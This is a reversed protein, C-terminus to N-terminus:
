LSGGTSAANAWITFTPFYVTMSCTVENVGEKFELSWVTSLSMQSEMQGIFKIIDRYDGVVIGAFIDADYDLKGVNVKKTEWKRGVVSCKTKEAIKNIASEYDRNAAYYEKWKGLFDVSDRVSRNLSVIQKSSDERQKKLGDVQARSSEYAKKEKDFTELGETFLYYCGAILLAIILLPMAYKKM